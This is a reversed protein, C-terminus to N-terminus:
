SDIHVATVVYLLISIQFIINQADISDLAKRVKM